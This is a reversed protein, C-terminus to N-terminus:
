DAVARVESLQRAPRRGDLLGGGRRGARWEDRGEDVRGVIEIGQGAALEEVMRGMKGYGVILLKLTM